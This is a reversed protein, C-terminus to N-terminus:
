NFPVYEKTEMEFLSKKQNKLPTFSNPDSKPRLRGNEASCPSGWNQSVVVRSRDWFSMTPGALQAGHVLLLKKQSGCVAIRSM